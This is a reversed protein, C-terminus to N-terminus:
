SIQEFFCGNVWLNNPSSRRVFISSMLLSLLSADWSVVWLVLCDDLCLDGAALLQHLFLLGFDLSFKKCYVLWKM